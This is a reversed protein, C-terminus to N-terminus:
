EMSSRLAYHRINKEYGTMETEDLLLSMGYLADVSKQITYPIALRDCVDKILEPYHASVGGTVILSDREPLSKLASKYNEMMSNALSAGAEKGAAMASLIQRGGILGSVTCLIKGGFFPRNECSGDIVRDCLTCLQAATGLNLIYQNKEALAGYFTAQHDGVPSFVPIANWEGVVCFNKTLKPLRLCRDLKENRKASDAIYFGTAAGDTIHTINNGTLLYAIYSGLTFLCNGNKMIDPSLQRNAWLSVAPLNVKLSSGSYSDIAGPYRAVFTDLFSRGSGDASLAARCDQWSIYNTVPRCFPDTVIYGHMQCSILIGSIEDRKEELVSFVASTIERVEVEFIVDLANKLRPPFPVTGAMGWGKTEPNYIAWKIHTSGIDILLHKM